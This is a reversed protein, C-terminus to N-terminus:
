MRNDVTTQRGCLHLFDCNKCIEKDQTQVFPQSPDYIRCFLDNLKEALLDKYDLINNNDLISGPLIYKRNGKNVERTSVIGVQVSTPKEKAVRDYM